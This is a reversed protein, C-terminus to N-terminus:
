VSKRRQQNPGSELGEPELSKSRIQSVALMHKISMLNLQNKKAHQRAKKKHRKARKTKLREKEQQKEAFIQFFVAHRHAATDNENLQNLSWQCAMWSALYPLSAREEEEQIRCLDLSKYRIIDIELKLLWSGIEDEQLARDLTKKCMQIDIYEEQWNKTKQRNLCMFFMIVYMSPVFVPKFSSVPTTHSMAYCSNMVYEWDLEKQTVSYAAFLDDLRLYTCGNYTTIQIPHQNASYIREM